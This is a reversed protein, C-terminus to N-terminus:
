NADRSLGARAATAVIAAQKYRTERSLNVAVAEQPCLRVGNRM